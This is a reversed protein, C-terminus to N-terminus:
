DVLYLRNPQSPQSRSQPQSTAENRRIFYIEVCEAQFAAQCNNNNEWYFLTAVQHIQKLLQIRDIPGPSNRAPLQQKNPNPITKQIHLAGKTNSTIRYEGPPFHLELYLEQWPADLIDQMCDWEGGEIDIKLITLQPHSLQKRITPLRYLQWEATNGESLYGLGPWRFPVQNVGYKKDVFGLGFSHYIANTVQEYADKSPLGYPSPDFGHVQCGRNALYHDFSFNDRIGFSYVICENVPVTNHGCLWWGGDQKDGARIKNPCIKTDLPLTFSYPPTPYDSRGRHYGLWLFLVPALLVAVKAPQRIWYYSQPKVKGDNKDKYYHM